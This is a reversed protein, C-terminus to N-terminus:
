RRLEKSSLNHLYEEVVLETNESISKTGDIHIVPCLLTKAWQEIRSLPRSAVFDVFKLHQEYMDGGECIREGHQEYARQKIREVRTELPASICVAFNYRSSIAEGFDGVVASVVFSGSKEIDALMLNLRDERTREVTYPIESKIFHYDEIDMYKFNLIRALERGLTSKGSGNAGFVIIGRSMRVGELKCLYDLPCFRGFIELKDVHYIFKSEM